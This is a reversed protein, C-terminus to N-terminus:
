KQQPEASSSSFIPKIFKNIFCLLRALNLYNKKKLFFSYFLNFFLFHFSYRHLEHSVVEDDVAKIIRLFLDVVPPAAGNLLGLIDRFFTPWQDPYETKVVLAMLQAYKNKVAKFIDIDHNCIVRSFSHLFKLFQSLTLSTVSYHIIM